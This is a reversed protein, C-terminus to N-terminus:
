LKSENLKTEKLKQSIDNNEIQLLRNKEILDQLEIEFGDKTQSKQRQPVNISNTIYASIAQMFKTFLTIGQNKM